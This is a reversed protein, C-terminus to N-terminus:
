GGAVIPRQVIVIPAAKGASPRVESVRREAKGHAEEIAAWVPVVVVVRVVVGVVRVIIREKVVGIVVRRGIVGSIHIRPPVIAITAGVIV